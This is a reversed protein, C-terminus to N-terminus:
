ARDIPTDAQMAAGGHRLALAAVHQAIHAVEARRMVPRFKAAVGAIASEGIMGVGGIQRPQEAQAGRAAAAEAADDACRCDVIFDQAAVRIRKLREIAGIGPTQLAVFQGARRGPIRLRDEGQAVSPEGPAIRTRMDARRFQVGFCGIQRGVLFSCEVQDIRDGVLVPEVHRHHELRTVDLEEVIVECQMRTCGELVVVIRGHLPM